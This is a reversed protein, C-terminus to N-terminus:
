RVVIAPKGPMAQRAKQEKSDESKSVFVRCKFENELDKINKSLFDREYKSGLIEKEKMGPNKVLLNIIKISDGEHGKVKFKKILQGIDRSDTMKLKAFLEHKWAEAVIVNVEGPKVKLLGIVINIDRKLNDLMEEAAELKIDIMKKNHKPWSARAILGKGKLKSWLEEAAHPAFPAIMLAVNKLAEKKSGDIHSLYNVFSILKTIANNYRFNEIDDTVEMITKHMRSEVSKNKKSIKDNALAFLRSLFRQSGEIGEQSWEMDKEPGSVSLVYLRLVDVGYKDMMEGPDVVNGKSKSMVSGEKTVMGHALLRTFPEDIRILKMDRLAKTFFRAYLLHLIAHEIGGIYQDVPMWAAAKKRDFPLNKEGPSCYRLFYWSSDVFTDMTDTERRADKNCRPCKVNVFNAANELPNGTGTFEVEEPLRVPLDKEPVPVTSCDKCYIIPIPTGWYRQRSILWDRLKYQSATKGIKKEELFQNIKSMAEKSKMGDFQGSNVLVGEDVFANIMKDGDMKWDARPKIVVKVPLKYKRAFEFDRQDHAPVGMVIGTGYDMLVFNAVYIQIKENTVPNIAHRGIYLGTKEDDNAFRGRVAFETIFKKVEQEHENGKVLEILRPHLPSILLFTSGYITDPRTTFVTLPENSGLLKFEILTGDSKGIWNEQMAKVREPWHELRKLDKLLEDAYKTIKFFWQELEKVGVNSHCRWCKGDIVQENALVTKCHECWNVLAKKKYALGKQYFKLFIWQNWKYYEPNCTIVERAWDYSFGLQKQQSKMEAIRSLTWKMPHVGQKIAANEAPLGFSDYGIPFLVDYGKMRKYRAYADSISYTRVHGMHLKGSPYPFMDLMYFRKKGQKPKFVKSKEWKAQWKSAIKKLDVM